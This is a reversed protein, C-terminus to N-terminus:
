LYADRVYLTADTSGSDSAFGVQEGGAPIGWIPALLNSADRAYAMARPQATTGAEPDGTRPRKTWFQLEDGGAISLAGFASNGFDILLNTADDMRRFRPGVCAGEVVARWPATTNGANPVMPNGTNVTVENEEAGYLLPDPCQWSADVTWLEHGIAHIDQDFEIPKPYAYAFVIAEPDATPGMGMTALPIFASTPHMASRLAMITDRGSVILGKVTITRSGPRTAGRFDGPGDNEQDTDRLEPLDWGSWKTDDDSYITGTPFDAEDEVPNPTFRFAGFEVDGIQECLDGIPM